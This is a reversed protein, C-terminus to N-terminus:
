KFDSKRKDVANVLAFAQDCLHCTGSMECRQGCKIRNEALKETIGRNDVNYDLNNILINLNGPWNQEEAYIHYLTREQSLDNAIFEFTTIYQEYISIDEPRVWQGHIGNGHVIYKDYAQNPIM